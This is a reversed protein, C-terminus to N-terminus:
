VHSRYSCKKEIVPQALCAIAMTFKKFLMKASVHQLVRHVKIPTFNEIDLKSKLKKYDEEVAWRQLYLNSFLKAPYKKIDMITTASGEIEGASLRM